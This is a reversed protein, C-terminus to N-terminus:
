SPKLKSYAPKQARKIVETEDLPSSPHYSLCLPTSIKVPPTLKESTAYFQGRELNSIDEGEGGRQRIQDRVVSIAAPSNARGYFQTSCNAIINHDISKPAQTAFILGLGYKRAQAALRNLSSKCPTTGQSPVFDKAEDIVVLGRLPQGPPAPNKKIWTFLTMALQNLFQQQQTQGPLGIFNIVSLRVKSGPENLGLLVAPDLALGQQRLLPNNAIEAYLVNAMEQAKQTARAINGAAEDPLEALLEAFHELSRGNTSAFYELANRLIGRKVKAAQGNGPAVIDQLSDRAMDIAQNLEDANGALAAFDPLPDLNIPNGAERGPTWVIVETAQHYKEAKARDADTWADPPTQWRDGMRALDNACDIVIAPIRQLAAEEVLRRVLVTKGAGSGALVVTHKTLAEIPLAVVQGAQQGSLRKGIPLGPPLIEVPPPDPQPKPNTPSVAPVTKGNHTASTASTSGNGAATVKSPAVEGFLWTVTEQMFSLSSAPRRDRLWVAFSPLNQGQLQHLAGMVRLEDATPYAFVGGAESCQQTLQQTSAGGPLDHTRVLMLRRFSLARDIGSTTMAAKLRARYASHHSRQLARLCFHKERDGEDRFTLRVRAHLQPYNRGGPFRSEAASDVSDATPNEQVLCDGVTQLWKGLVDDEQDADRASGINVQQKAAAFAQDIQAFDHEEHKGGGNHKEFSHLETIEGTILCQQRHQDCRKLIQRPLKGKTVADEFFDLHFPWTLYPPSFGTQQYASRLRLSVLQEAVNQETIETLFVRDQFRDKVSQVVEKTLIEWTVPLCSVMILTRSTSDRLAMLGGGIGEIISKSVRQEESLETNTSINAIYHHQAVISDLQDLALVCPGQLSIIWSLGEVIKSLRMSTSKFGFDVKDEAEIEIGQLFSLGVGSIDFGDHNLLIVARIVDQFQMTAQRNTEALASLIARIGNKLSNPLLQAMQDASVSRGTISIFYEVLRKLQFRSTGEESDEQLSSVYGQLITEWFKHVDTMDVLIFSAERSLAQKRVTSLLHTKGAGPVGRIVMGLPSTPSNSEKLKDLAHIIEKRERHHLRDVDFPYDHWISRVHRTWDFDVVSLAKLAIEQNTM